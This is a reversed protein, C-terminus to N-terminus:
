PWAAQIREPEVADAGTMKWDSDLRAIISEHVEWPSECLLGQELGCYIPGGPLERRVNDVDHGGKSVVPTARRGDEEHDNEGIGGAPSLLKQPDGILYRTEDNLLNLRQLLPTHQGVEIEAALRLLCSDILVGQGGLHCERIVKKCESLVYSIKWGLRTVL